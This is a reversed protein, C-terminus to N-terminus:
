EGPRHMDRVTQAVLELDSESIGVSCPLSLARENLCLATKDGVSQCGGWLSLSSMPRWLPRTQIGRESLYAMLDRSGTGFEDEDILVSSMWYICGAWEAARYVEIGPVEGLTESYFAAIARKVAIYDPLQELQAVGMAAQINTLRYNYGIEHHVYEVPDDKAQTTLYRARKAWAQNDTVIMGGGGTTIIKNGNFSFCAIDGLTGVMQGKYKAGLSETADEIVTLEYKRAVELIPDMDVPHGLIHVPLIASVRRGTAKNRLEGDTWNCETDLFDVVRQPDMQWYDPEADIFVPWAGVYRIANAPAIFTLNSVLVEDDPQVGAVLLAIHLAATGNVTAVAHKAGVYDALEREFRDVFSGVSSVWNTDLCEKIYKWENGRIEPVCLPITGQGGPAGPEFPMSKRDITSM